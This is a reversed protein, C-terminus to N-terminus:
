PPPTRVPPRREPEERDPRPIRGPLVAALLHHLQDRRRRPRLVLPGPHQRQRRAPHGPRGAHGPRALDTGPDPRDLLQGGPVAHVQRVVRARLVPDVEARGAGRQRGRRLDDGGLHREDVRGQGGLRLGAPRRPARRHVAADLVRRADLVEAAPRPEHRRGAGAARAAHHGDPGRVPRPQGGTRVALLDLHRALRGPGDAQALRCRGARHLARQGPHRRQEGRDARRLPRQDGPVAAQAPAPRAQGGALGAARDGRRLHLCRRRRARHHRLAARQGAREDGLYGTAYAENVAQTVRRIAHVAEGRIYVFAHQARVAYCAIIIGEIMSHPDNMMLPLDRCTGPEGEDANVVVYHPKAAEGPKAQPIFQWKMGTPFGAGGRGRLNSDKVLAILEDPQM